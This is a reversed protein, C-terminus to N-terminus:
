TAIVNPFTHRILKIRPIELTKKWLTDLEEKTLFDKYVEPEHFRIHIIGFDQSTRLQYNRDKGCFRIFQSLKRRKIKGSPM